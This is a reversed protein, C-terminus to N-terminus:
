GCGLNMRLTSILRIKWMRFDLKTTRCEGGTLLFKRTLYISKLSIEFDTHFM